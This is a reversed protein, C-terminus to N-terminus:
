NTNTPLVAFLTQKQEAKHKSYISPYSIHKVMLRKPSWTKPNCEVFNLYDSVVNTNETGFFGTPKDHM